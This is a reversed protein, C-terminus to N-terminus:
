ATVGEREAIIDDAIKECDPCLNVNVPVPEGCLDCPKVPELWCVHRYSDGSEDIQFLSICISGEPIEIIEQDRSSGYVTEQRYRYYM